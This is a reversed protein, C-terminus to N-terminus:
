AHRGGIPKIEALYPLDFDRYAQIISVLEARVHNWDELTAEEKGLM